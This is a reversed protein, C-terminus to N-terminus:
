TGLETLSPTFHCNEVLDNFADCGESVTESPGQLEESAKICYDVWSVHGSLTTM